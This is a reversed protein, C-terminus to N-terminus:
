NKRAKQAHSKKPDILLLIATQLKENAVNLKEVSIFDSEWIPVQFTLIKHM